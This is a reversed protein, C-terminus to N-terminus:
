GYEKLIKIAKEIDVRFEEPIIELNFDKMIWIKVLNNLNELM